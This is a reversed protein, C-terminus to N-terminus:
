ALTVKIQLWIRHIWKLDQKEHDGYPLLSSVVIEKKFSGGGRRLWFEESLGM